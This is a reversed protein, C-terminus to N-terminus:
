KNLHYIRATLEGAAADGTKSLEKIQAAILKKGM